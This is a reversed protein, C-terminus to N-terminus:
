TYLLIQLDESNEILDEKKWLKEVKYTFVGNFYNEIEELSLNKNRKELPILLDIHTYSNARSALEISINESYVDAGVIDDLSDVNPNLVQAFEFGRIRLFHKLNQQRTVLIKKM